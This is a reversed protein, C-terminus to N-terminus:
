PRKRGVFRTVSGQGNHYVGEQLEIVTEALEIVEYNAFDSQIEDTSFLSALDPPGGVKVNQARFALHNKGFAEFILTGGVKLKKDLLAHYASRIAPPFHAYILAIADFPEELFILEPLLGVQYDISVDNRRALEQAKRKGEHSIDFASVKWGLTTAYVANRGEGEAGFLIAGAPLKQIEQKLFLNPQTGYAYQEARYRDDWKKTWADTM